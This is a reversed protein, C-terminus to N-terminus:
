LLGAEIVESNVGGGSTHGQSGPGRRAEGGNVASVQVWPKMRSDCLSADTM